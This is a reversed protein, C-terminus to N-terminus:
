LIKNKKMGAAKKKCINYMIQMIARLYIFLLSMSRSPLFLHVFIIYQMDLLTDYFIGM